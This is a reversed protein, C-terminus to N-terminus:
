SDKVEIFGSTEAPDNDSLTENLSVRNKNKKKYLSHNDLDSEEADEDEEVIKSELLHSQVKELPVFSHM